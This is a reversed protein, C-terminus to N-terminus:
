EYSVRPDAIAYCVDRILESTLGLLGGLLTTAMVLERDKQFAAEVALNGMGNISFVREVVVSGVFLAPIISAAMTILPLLSNRFAHRLLVVREGLGKARATRVYDSALSDLVAGRMVKSMVAFGTYTLCTVPLVLHWLRDLLFGREFGAETMRPLLAMNRVESSSLGTTPFLKLHQENALYTILLVATWIVPVSWLGLLTVGSGVDIMKGKHRAAMLGTTVAIVYIIPIAIANLLITIPISDALRAAVSRGGMTRGLSPAKLAPKDFRVRSKGAVEFAVARIISSQAADLREQDLANRARQRIEELIAPETEVDLVEVWRLAATPDGRLDDALAAAVQRPRDGTYAAIYLVLEVAEQMRRPRTNFALERLPEAAQTRAQEGFEIESSMRFGVPSIQNLWRGFQVILPQDLGYRQEVRKRARRADEGASQADMEDLTTGAFGGPALAMVFFVVACVGLLTPIMLLLRQAIYTLM